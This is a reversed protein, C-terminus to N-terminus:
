KDNVMRKSTVKSDLDHKKEDHPDNPDMMKVGKSDSIVIMITM